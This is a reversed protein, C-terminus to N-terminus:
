FAGLEAAQRSSQAGMAANGSGNGQSLIAQLLMVIASLYSSQDVNGNLRKWKAFM